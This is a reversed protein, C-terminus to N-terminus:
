MYLGKLNTKINTFTQVKILTQYRLRISCLIHLSYNAWQWWAAKKIISSLNSGGSSQHFRHFPLIFIKFIANFPGGFPWQCKLSNSSIALDNWGELNLEGTTAPGRCVVVCDYSTQNVVSGRITVFYNALCIGSTTPCPWSIDAKRILCTM